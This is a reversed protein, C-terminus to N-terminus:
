KRMIIKKRKKEEQDLRENKIRMYNQRKFMLNRIKNIKEKEKIKQEKDFKNYEEKASNEFTHKKENDENENNEIPKLNNIHNLNYNLGKYIKPRRRYLLRPFLNSITCINKGENEKGKSLFTNRKLEENQNQNQNDIFNENLKLPRLVIRSKNRVKVQQLTMETKTIIM